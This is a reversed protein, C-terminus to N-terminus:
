IIQPRHRKISRRKRYSREEDIFFIDGESTVMPLQFFDENSGDRARLIMYAVIVEYGTELRVRTAPVSFPTGDVLHGQAIVSEVYTVIFKKNRKGYVVEPFDRAQLPMFFLLGM